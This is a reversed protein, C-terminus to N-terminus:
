RPTSRLAGKTFNSKNECVDCPDEFAGELSLIPNGNRPLDNLQKEWADLQPRTLETFTTAKFGGSGGPEFNHTGPVVLLNIPPSQPPPALRGVKYHGDDYCVCVITDGEVCVIVPEYDWEHRYVFYAIILAIIILAIVILIIKWGIAVVVVLVKKWVWTVATAVAKRFYYLAAAALGTGVVAVLKRQWTRTVTRYWRKVPGWVKKKFYHTVTWLTIHSISWEYIYLFCLIGNCMVARCWVKILQKEEGSPLQLDPQYKKAKDLVTGTLPQYQAPM